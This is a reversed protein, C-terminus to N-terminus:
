SAARRIYVAGTKGHVVYASEFFPRLSEALRLDSVYGDLGLRGREARRNLLAVCQQLYCEYYEMPNLSRGPLPNRRWKHVLMSATRRRDGGVRSANVAFSASGQTPDVSRSSATESGRELIHQRLEGPLDTEWGERDVPGVVLVNGVLLDNPDFRCHKRAFETARANVLQGTLKGNGDVYLMAGRKGIAPGPRVQIPEVTHCGNGILRYVDDFDSHEVDAVTGDIRIVLAKRSKAAGSRRENM